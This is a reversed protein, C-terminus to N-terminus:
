LSITWIIDGTAQLIEKSTKEFKEKFKTVLPLVVQQFSIIITRQMLINVNEKEADGGEYMACM